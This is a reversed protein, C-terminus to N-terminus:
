YILIIFFSDDLSFHLNLKMRKSEEPLLTTISM